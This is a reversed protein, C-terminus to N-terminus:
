TEKEQYILLSPTLVYQTEYLAEFEAPPIDDLSSHLRHHNFWGVWEVIALELESRTRWPRDAILETKFSDVFSEALANDYADGTSGLSALIGHDDLAGTFQASTYQCGRDSHHILLGDPDPQRAAVAMDLADQVLSTRMHAAFQWGVIMRSYADIVFSFFM